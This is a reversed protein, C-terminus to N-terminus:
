LNSGCAHVVLLIVIAVGVCLFLMVVTGEFAEAPGHITKDTKKGETPESRFTQAIAFVVASLIGITILM